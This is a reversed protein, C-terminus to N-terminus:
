LVDAEEKAWTTRTMRLLWAETAVRAEGKAPTDVYGVHFDVVGRSTAARAETLYWLRLYGSTKERVYLEFARDAKNGYWWMRLPRVREGVFRKARQLNAYLVPERPSFKAYAAKEFAFLKAEQSRWWSLHRM